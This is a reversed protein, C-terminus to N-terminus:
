RGIFDLGYTRGLDKKEEEIRLESEYMLGFVYQMGRQFIRELLRKQNM